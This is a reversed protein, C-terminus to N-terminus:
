LLILIVAYLNGVVHFFLPFWLAGTKYKVWSLFIGVAFIYVMELSSYQFHFFSFLAATILISIWPYKNKLIVDMRTQLYGRFLIEELLPGFIVLGLIILIRETSNNASISIETSDIVYEQLLICVCLVIICYLFWIRHERRIAQFGLNRFPPGKMLLKTTVWTLGIIIVSSLILSIHFQPLDWIQHYVGNIVVDFGQLTISDESGGYFFFQLVTFLFQLLLYSGLIFFFTYYLVIWKTIISGKIKSILTM